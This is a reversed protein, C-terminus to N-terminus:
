LRARKLCKTQMNVSASRRSGDMKACVTLNYCANELHKYSLKVLLLCRLSDAPCGLKQILHVDSALVRQRSKM